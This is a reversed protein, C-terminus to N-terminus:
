STGVEFSSTERDRARVVYSRPQRTVAGVITSQSHQGSSSRTSHPAVLDIRMCTPAALDYDHIRQTTQRSADIIPVENGPRKLTYSQESYTRPLLMSTAASALRFDNVQLGPMTHGTVEYANGVASMAGCLHLTPGHGGAVEAGHWQTCGRRATPAPGTQNGM